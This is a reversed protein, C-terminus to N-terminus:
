TASCKVSLSTKGTEVTFKYEGGFGTLTSESGSAGYKVETKDMGDAKKVVLIVKQGDFLKLDANGTYSEEGITVLASEVKLNVTVYNASELKVVIDSKM